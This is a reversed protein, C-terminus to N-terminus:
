FNGGFRQQSSKRATGTRRRVTNGELKKNESDRKNGEAALWTIWEEADRVTITNIMRDAGFREILLDCVQRDRVATALSVAPRSQRYGSLFASLTLHRKERLLGLKELKDRLEADLKAAWEDLSQTFSGSGRSVGLLEEFKVRFQDATKKPMSGLRIARRKTGVYWTLKWSDRKKEKSISAM